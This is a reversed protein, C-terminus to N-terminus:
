VIKFGMLNNLESFFVSKWFLLKLANELKIKILIEISSSNISQEAFNIYKFKKEINLFITKKSFPGKESNFFKM